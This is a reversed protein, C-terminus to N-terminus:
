SSSQASSPRDHARREAILASDVTCWWRLVPRLAVFFVHEDNVSVDRPADDPCEAHQQAV